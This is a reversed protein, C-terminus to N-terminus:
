MVFDKECLYFSNIDSEIYCEANAVGMRNIRHDYNFFFLLPTNFCMVFEKDCLYFSNIHNEIIYCETKAVGKHSDTLIRWSHIFSYQLM